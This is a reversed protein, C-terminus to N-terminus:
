FRGSVGNWLPEGSGGGGMQSSAIRNNGESGYRGYLFVQACGSKKSYLSSFSRDGREQPTQFAMHCTVDNGGEGWGRTGRLIFLHEQRASGKMGPITTCSNGVTEFFVETFCVGM